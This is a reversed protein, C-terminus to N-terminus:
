SYAQKPLNIELTGNAMCPRIQTVVHKPLQSLESTSRWFQFYSSETMEAIFIKSLELLNYLYYLIVRVVELRVLCRPLFTTMAHCRLFREIQDQGIADFLVPFGLNQNRLVGKLPFRQTLDMAIQSM